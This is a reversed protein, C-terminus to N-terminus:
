KKSSLLQKYHDYLKMQSRVPQKPDLEKDNHGIVKVYDQFTKFTGKIPKIM